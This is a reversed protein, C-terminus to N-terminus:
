WNRVGTMLTIAKIKKEKEYCRVRLLWISLFRSSNIERVRLDVAHIGMKKSLTM